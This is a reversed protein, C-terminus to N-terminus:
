PSIAAPDAVQRRIILVTRLFKVRGPDIDAETAGRCVLASVAHRALLYGYIEQRVM